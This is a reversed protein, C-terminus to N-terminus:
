SGGIKQAVFEFICTGSATDVTANVSLTAPATLIPTTVSTSLNTKNGAAPPTATTFTALATGGGSAATRITATVSGSAGNSCTRMWAGAAGASLSFTGAGAPITITGLDGTGGMTLAASSFSCLAGTTAAACPLNTANTLDVASPVGLAPTVLTPSTARVVSGTGTGGTTVNAVSLVTPNPYSGGLDGGAGGSPPGGGGGTSGFGPQTVAQANAALPLALAGALLFALLKKM